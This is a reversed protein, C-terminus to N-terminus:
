KKKSKKEKSEKEYKQKEKEIAKQLMELKKLKEQANDNVKQMIQAGDGGEEDGEAGANATGAGPNMKMDYSPIRKILDLMSIKEMKLVTQSDDEVHANLLGMGTLVCNLNWVKRGDHNQLVAIIKRIEDTIGRNKMEDELIGKIADLDIKAENDLKQPVKDGVVELMQMTVKDGLTFAAVKNQSPVYYDIQKTNNGTEMDMIFFGATIFADKYKQIFNKYEKSSSLQELLPQLKM